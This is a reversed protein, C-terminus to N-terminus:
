LENFKGRQIEVGHDSLVMALRRVDLEEIEVVLMKLINELGGYGAKNWVKLKDKLVKFKEKLLYGMWGGFSKWRWVNEVVEELKKIKM